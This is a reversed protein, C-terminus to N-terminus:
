CELEGRDQALEEAEEFLFQTYATRVQPYATRAVPVRRGMVTVLEGQRLEQMWQLNV